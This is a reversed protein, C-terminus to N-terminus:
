RINRTVDQRPARRRAPSVDHAVVACVDPLVILYGGFDAPADDGVALGTDDQRIASVINAHHQVFVRLLPDAVVMRGVFHLVALYGFCQWQFFPKDQREIMVPVIEAPAPFGSIIQDPDPRSRSALGLVFCILSKLVVAM